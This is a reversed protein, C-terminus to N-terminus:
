GGMAVRTAIELQRQLHSSLRNETVVKDRNRGVMTLVRREQHNNPRTRTGVPM